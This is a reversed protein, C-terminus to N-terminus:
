TSFDLEEESDSDDFLTREQQTLKSFTEQEFQQDNLLDYLQRKARLHRAGKYIGFMLAVGVVAVFAYLWVAPAGSKRDNGYVSDWDAGRALQMSAQIVSDPQISTGAVTQNARVYGDCMYYVRFNRVFSMIESSGM